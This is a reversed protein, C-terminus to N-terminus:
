SGVSCRDEPNGQRLAIEVRTRPKARHCKVLLNKLRKGYGLSFFGDVIEVREFAKLFATVHVNGNVMELCFEQSAQNELRSVKVEPDLNLIIESPQNTDLTDEFVVSSNDIRFERRHILGFGYQEGIFHQTDLKLIRAHARDRMSFLGLLGGAWDNQELGDMVLTNHAGTSRFANRIHPFPTYLYSGGDTIFDKGQFNFEFSLSDNHAHGGNGNQGIPGCRIALCINSSKFIFSGFEPYAYLKNKEPHNNKRLFQIDTSESPSAHGICSSEGREHICRQEGATLDDAGKYSTLLIGRALQKVIETEIWGSGTFEAFDKRRFLGNIAAVLHRHDLHDENWDHEADSLVAASKPSAHQNEPMGVKTLHFFPHLKLFRGNDNDGIQPMHGNTKTLHMTFEAMKEVKEIYSIPFPTFRESGPLAYLPIPCPKLKPHYRFLRYDFDQLATKKEESLGLILATAYAVMEASLRHYSTSAEFNSGDDKFQREVEKLLEQVAFALWSDTEPTRPLYSAVFLLGVIDSLYHNGRLREDWELNNMIHRGHEYISNFFPTVFFEDFVAGSARFLDYSVLWNSVRIAVDMTSRWNVGFRPPNTAIFDLIQNRFEKVYVRSPRFKKEGNASLIYAWVLIPFHQMRSLEWPVKIDVGPKHGYPITHYWTNESWRYGSKYDLHWDIPVYDPDIIQWTQQSTILNSATVCGKLWEGKRDAFVKTETQYRYGEIGGCFMGHKVQVWGSGLLDFYHQLYLETVAAIENAKMKLNHLPPAAFYNYLRNIEYPIISSYTCRRFDRAETFHRKVRRGIRQIGKQLIWSPPRSQSLVIYDRVRM